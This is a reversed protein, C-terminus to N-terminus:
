VPGIKLSATAYLYGSVFLAAGWLMGWISAYFSFSSPSYNVQVFAMSLFLVTATMAIYM